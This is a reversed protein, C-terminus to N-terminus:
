REKENFWALEDFVYYYQTRKVPYETEVTEKLEAGMKRMTEIGEDTYVLYPLLTRRTLYKEGLRVLAESRTRFIANGAKPTAALGDVWDGLKHQEM